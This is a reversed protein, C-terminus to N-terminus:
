GFDVGVESGDLVFEGVEVGEGGVEDGLQGFEDVLLFEGEVSELGVEAFGGM